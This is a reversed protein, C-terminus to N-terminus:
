RDKNCGIACDVGQLLKRGSDRDNERVLRSCPVGRKGQLKCDVSLMDSRRLLEAEGGGAYGCTISHAWSASPSGVYEIVM